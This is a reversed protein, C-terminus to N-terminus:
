KDLGARIGVLLASTGGIVFVLGVPHIYTLALGFFAYFIGKIILNWKFSKETEKNTSM